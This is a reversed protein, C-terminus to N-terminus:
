YDGMKTNVWVAAALGATETRLVRPGLLLPKWGLGDALEIEEPSFGGEPGVALAVSKSEASLDAKQTSGPALLIKEDADISEFAKKLSAHASIKMLINRGCQESAAVVADKLKAIRKELREGSLKTVSRSAPVLHVESVGAEVAKEVIWDMKEPNVLSQVLIIEVPSEVSSDEKHLDDVFVAKDRFAIKGSWQPGSGNFVVVEEGAALRLTREAHHAQKSPLQISQVGDTIEIDLFFRPRAM